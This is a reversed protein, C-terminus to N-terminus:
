VYLFLKPIEASIDLDVKTRNKKKTKKLLNKANTEHKVQEM